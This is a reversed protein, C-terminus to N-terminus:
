KKKLEAKSSFDVLNFILEFADTVGPKYNFNTVEKIDVSKFNNVEYSNKINKSDLNKNVTDINDIIHNNNLNSNKDDEKLNFNIENIKNEKNNNISCLDNSNENKIDCSHTNKLNGNKENKNEVINCIPSKNNEIVKLKSSVLSNSSSDSKDDRKKEYYFKNIIKFELENRFVLHQTIQFVVIIVQILSFCSALVEDVKNYWRNIIKRKPNLDYIFRVTSFINSKEVLEFTVDKEFFTQETTSGLALLISHDTVIVNKTLLFKVNLDYKRYDFTVKRLVNFGEYGIKIFPNLLETKFIVRFEIEGTRFNLQNRCIENEQENEDPKIEDAYPKKGKNQTDYSLNCDNFTFYKSISKLKATYLDYDQLTVNTINNDSYFNYLNTPLPASVRDDPKKYPYIKQGFNKDLYSNFTPYYSATYTSFFGGGFLPLNRLYLEKMENKLSSSLNYHYLGFQENVVSINMVEEVSNNRIGERYNILPSNTEYVNVFNYILILLSAIYILVSFIKGKLTSIGVKGYYNLKPTVKFLDVLEFFSKM